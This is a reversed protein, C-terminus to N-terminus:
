LSFPLVAAVSEPLRIHRSRTIARQIARRIWWAAYTGIEGLDPKFREAARMLGIAGEAIM